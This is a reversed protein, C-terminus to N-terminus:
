CKAFENSRKFTNNDLDGFSVFPIFVSESAIGREM